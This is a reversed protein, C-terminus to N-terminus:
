LSIDDSNITIYKVKYEPYLNLLDYAENIRNIAMQSNEESTNWLLVLMQSINYRTIVDAKRLCNMLARELYGIQRNVIHFETVLKGNEDVVAALLLTSVLGERKMVRNLLHFNEAFKSFSCRYAGTPISSVLDNIVDEKHMQSFDKRAIINRYCQQLVDSPYMAMDDFLAKKYREYEEQAEEYRGEKSLCNLYGLEWEDEYPFMAKARFFLEKAKQSDNNTLHYNVLKRVIKSFQDEISAKAVIVWMESSFMPLLAGNISNIAKTYVEIAEGEPLQSAEQILRNFQFIDSDYEIEPDFKYLGDNFVIFKHNGIDAEELQKRLRFVLAKLSNFPDANLGEGYLYDILTAKSVGEDHYYLLIALLQLAKYSTKNFLDVRKGNIRINFDGTMKCYIGM